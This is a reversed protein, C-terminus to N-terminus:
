LHNKRLYTLSKDGGELDTNRDTSAERAATAGTFDRGFITKTKKRYIAVQSQARGKIREIESKKNQVYNISHSEDIDQQSKLSQMKMKVLNKIKGLSMGEFENLM